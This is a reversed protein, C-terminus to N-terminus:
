GLEYCVRKVEANFDKPNLQIDQSAAKRLHAIEAKTKEINGMVVVASDVLACLRARKAPDKMIESIIQM